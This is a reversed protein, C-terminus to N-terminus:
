GRVIGDMNISKYIKIIKVLRIQNRQSEERVALIGNWNDGTAIRFLTLMATGFSKFHAHPGLGQCPHSSSCETFCDCVFHTIKFVPYGKNQKSKCLISYSFVPNPVAPGVFNFHFFLLSENLKKRFSKM